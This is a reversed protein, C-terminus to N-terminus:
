LLERIKDNDKYLEFEAKDDGIFDVCEIPKGIKKAYLIEMEVWKSYLNNNEDNTNQTRVFLIKKSQEIRTLLVKKTYDSVQNRKLFDNDSLWDCYINLNSENLFDKIKRVLKNDRYSHSIFLDFIKKNQVSDNEIRDFLDIPSMDFDTKETMYVKKRGKFNKRLKVYKGIKQLHKFALSRIQGNKESDNLKRFFILTKDCDYKQLEKVIEMKEELNIGKRHYAQIFIDIYLPEVNQMYDKALSIKENRKLKRVKAKKRLEELKKLRNEENYNERHLKRQGQSLIHKVKQLDFLYQEPQVPKYRKKKGVQKLFIDKEKYTKYREEIVSWEHSYFEIFLHLIDNKTYNIPLVSKINHLPNKLSKNFRMLEGIYKRQTKGPM